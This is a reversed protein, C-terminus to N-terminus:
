DKRTAEGAVELRVITGNVDAIRVRSGNRIHGHNHNMGQTVLWRAYEYRTTEAPSIVSFSELRKILEKQPVFNMVRGEVVRYHGRELATRLRHYAVWNPVAWVIGMLVTLGLLVKNLTQHSQTFRTPTFFRLYIAVVAVPIVSLWWLQPLQRSVDFVVQYSLSDPTLSM